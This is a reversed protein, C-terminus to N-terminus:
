SIKPTTGFNTWNPRSIPAPVCYARPKSDAAVRDVVDDLGPEDLNAVVLDNAYHIVEDGSLGMEGAAWTGMMKCAKAEARFQLQQDHAFKNEFATTRDDFTTM